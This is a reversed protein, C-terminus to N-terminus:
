PSLLFQALSEGKVAPQSKGAAMKQHQEGGSRVPSAHGCLPEVDGGLMSLWSPISRKTPTQLTSPLFPLSSPSRIQSTLPFLPHMQRCLAALMMSLVPSCGDQLTDHHNMKTISPFPHSHPTESSFSFPTTRVSPQNVARLPVNLGQIQCLFVLITKSTLWKRPWGDAKSTGGWLSSSTNCDCSGASAHAQYGSGERSATERSHCGLVILESLKFVVKKLIINLVVDVSSDSGYKYLIGCHKLPASANPTTKTLFYCRM